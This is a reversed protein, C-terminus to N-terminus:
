DRYREIDRKISSLLNNLEWVEGDEVLKNLAKQYRAAEARRNLATLTM